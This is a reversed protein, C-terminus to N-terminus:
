DCEESGIEDLGRNFAPQRASHSHSAEHVRGRFPRSLVLHESKRSLLRCQLPIELQILNESLVGGCTLWEVDFARANGAVRFRQRPISVFGFMEIGASYHCGLRLPHKGFSIVLM